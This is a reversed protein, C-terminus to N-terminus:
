AEDLSNRNLLFDFINMFLIGNEDYHKPTLDGTVVIKKFSDDIKKLPRTEQSIKNQDPLSFASQIYYRKYGLNCVFDIELQTRKAKNNKDKITTPIIGVDVNFGRLILENYIVNELSHSPEIQRFNINSNRLGLDSFYFKSPTGIYSKGKLDYRNAKYILFSDQLIDLYKKVTTASISSKLESVFRNKLKEPNTLSGIGSSLINM